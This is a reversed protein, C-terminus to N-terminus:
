NNMREIGNTVAVGLDELEQKTNGSYVDMSVDGYKITAIVKRNMFIKINYKNFIILWKAKFNFMTKLHSELSNLDSVAEIEQPLIKDANEEEEKVEEVKVITKEPAVFM